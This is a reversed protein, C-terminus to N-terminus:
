FSSYYEYIKFIKNKIRLIKSDKLNNYLFDLINGISELIKDEKCEFVFVILNIFNKELKELFEEYDRNSRVYIIERVTKDISKVIELCKRKNKLKVELPYIFKSYIFNYLSERVNKNIIVM